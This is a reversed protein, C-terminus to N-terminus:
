PCHYVILSLTWIGIGVTQEQNVEWGSPFLNISVHFPSEAEGHVWYDFLKPHFEITTESTSLLPHLSVTKAVRGPTPVLPTTPGVDGSRRSTAARIIYDM